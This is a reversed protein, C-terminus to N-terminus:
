TDCKKHVKKRVSEIDYRTKNQHMLQSKRAKRIHGLGIYVHQEAWLKVRHSYDIATLEATM